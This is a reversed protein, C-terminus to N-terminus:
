RSQRIRRCRRNGGAFSFGAAVNSIANDIKDYLKKGITDSLAKVFEKVKNPPNIIAQCQDMNYSAM